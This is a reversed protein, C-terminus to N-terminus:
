SNLEYTYAKVRKGAATTVTALVRRYGEGEFEDLEPWFAPLDPSTFLKGAVDGAASADSDLILAPFGYSTACGDPLFLGHTSAPQWDGMLDALVHENSRGPALTGYVFLRCAADADISRSSRSVM